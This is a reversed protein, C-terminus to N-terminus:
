PGPQGPHDLLQPPVFDALQERHQGWPGTVRAIPEQQPVRVWGKLPAILEPNPYTHLLLETADTWCNWMQAGGEVLWQAQFETNYAAVYWPHYMYEDVKPWEYDFYRQWDVCFKWADKKPREIIARM